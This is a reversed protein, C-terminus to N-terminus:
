RDLLRSGSNTLLHRMTMTTGAPRSELSRKPDIAVRLSKWEPIVDAVPQDLRLKGVQILTMTAIGTVVKTASYLRYISNEDAAVTSDLALRGAARYVPVSGYSLAAVAGANKRM